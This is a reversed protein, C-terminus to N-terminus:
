YDSFPLMGPSSARFSSSHTNAQVFACETANYHPDHCEYALPKVMALNGGISDNFASWSAISPWCSQHPQCRCFAGAHVGISITVLLIITLRSNGMNTSETASVARNSIIAFGLERKERPGIIPLYIPSTWYSFIVANVNLM